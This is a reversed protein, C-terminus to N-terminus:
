AYDIEEELDNEEAELVRRSEVLQLKEATKLRAVMALATYIKLHNIRFDNLYFTESNGYIVLRTENKYPTIKFIREVLEQEYIM